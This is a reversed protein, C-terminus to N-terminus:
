RNCDPCGYILERGCYKYHDIESPVDQEEVPIDIKLVMTNECSNSISEAEERSKFSNNIFVDDDYYYLIYRIM